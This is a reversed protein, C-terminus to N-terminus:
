VAWSVPDKELATNMNALLAEGSKIIEVELVTDIGEGGLGEIGARMTNLETRLTAPDMKRFGDVEDRFRLLEFLKQTAEAQERSDEPLEQVRVALSNLSATSPTGGGELIKRQDSIESNIDRALAKSISRANNIEANLSRVLTRTKETGLEKPPNSVLEELFAIKEKVDGTRQFDGLVSEVVSQQKTSIITRSIVDEDVDRDRMDGALDDIMMDISMKRFEPDAESAAFANINNIREAFGLLAKGQADEKQKKNWFSSYRLEANSARSALKSRLIGAVEPNLDSLAAPFGDVIDDLKEKVEFFPTEQIEADSLTKNIELLAETEIESSAIRNAIEYAKREGATTPGGAARLTRLVPQAGMESVIEGARQEDKRIQERYLFDSMREFTQSITQGLRASERAAAFDIRGPQAAQVGARQYKPLRAM